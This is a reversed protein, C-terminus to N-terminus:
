RAKMLTLPDELRMRFADNPNQDRLPCERDTGSHGWKGCRLCKVMRIEVGFPKVHADAGATAEKPAGKLCEFEEATAVRRGTSGRGM